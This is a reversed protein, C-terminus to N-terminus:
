GNQTVLEIEEPTLQYLAFIIQNLEEEADAIQTDLRQIQADLEVVASKLSHDDTSRLALLRALLRKATFKETVNTSRCVQRWQAAILATEPKDFLEIVAVGNILLRLEDADNEVSLLACPKLLADVVDYHNQLSQAARKKAWTTLARGTLGDPVAASLKCEAVSKVDAWLWSSAHKADRMQSSRLRREIKETLDRRATHMEQLLMARDGIAKKEADTADPIPLPALFQKNAEYYGGDKPKAIRKFVFDVVPANLVALLYWSLGLSETLISNVRVNNVFFEGQHDFSVRMGPVTQAVCLKPLEQKDISQNRGFRYWQADDFKGRERGRLENEFQLLYKWGCPFQLQMESSTYLHPEDGKIDYPFLVSTDTQPFLYRKAEPGSVLPHMLADEISVAEGSKTEYQNLSIRKLHYISDASTILGQFIHKTWKKAGLPVCKNRLRVLLKMEKLSTLNWPEDVPLDLLQINADPTRWDVGAIDGDPAFVCRVADVSGGCFFQLATYTTAESFVQFSKFDVWRDLCRREKIWNRLSKGYENVMWVNPAIYGMKGEPKLLSVGKEIFPLYLDFNGSQTSHYVPSGDTQRAEVLYEAVDSEVRRFNQLKVYPPNGIVCDFGGKKFVKPFSAHWDFANIRERANVEMADFLDSHKNEYFASFDVGVLSNGCKINDDLNSLKKGPLATHMWLALKAIEVSEPNIDVGYLNNSIIEKTVTDTEWLESYGRVRALEDYVWRYESKLYELAQILFAGSGCAPDVIRVRKLKLLYRDELAHVWDAAVPATRRKDKLFARYQRVDDETPSLEPSLGCENKIEDLRAGVTEHVIYETVWEPTYYVGDRKRKSLLNISDRGEAEAEMIELETISQEFIRGLAYFDIVRTHGADKIGFNYKASFYLLTLPHKYLSSEGGAGQNKMCFVKAPIKLSVLEPCDEFLGGNFCNITLEGFTGGTRMASFISKLREWPLNDDPHYFTDKSHQILIDRLLNGPFDLSKGMDECFLIFLCRDLLRQTLKVLQGKTGKFDPNCDVITRYLFERYDRYELYFEKELNQAHILQRELIKQLASSGRESLLSESCFIKWFLFRCFDASKTDSLLSEQEDGERPEIVFRQCQSRGHKACYLRFENMDTVIAWYPEVLEQGTQKTRAGRLYDLCQEVPSRQNGKRNQKKDLASSIDKFECLVQPVGSAGDDTKGFLGLALDAQGAGGREGAGEVVFQPYCHFTGNACDGEQDYGWLRHFFQKIFAAESSTEKLKNGSWNRLIDLVDAAQGSKHFAHYEDAWRASLFPLDFLPKNIM